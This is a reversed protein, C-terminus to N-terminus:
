HVQVPRAQLTGDENVHLELRQGERWGLQQLVEPSLTVRGDGDIEIIALFAGQYASQDVTM